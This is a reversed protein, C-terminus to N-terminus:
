SEDLIRWKGNQQVKEETEKKTNQVKIQMRNVEPSKIWRPNNYKKENNKPM